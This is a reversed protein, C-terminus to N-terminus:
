DIKNKEIMIKDIVIKIINEIIENYVFPEIECINEICEYLQKKFL